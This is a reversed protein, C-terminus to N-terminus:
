GMPYRIEKAVADCAARAEPPLTFDAAALTETLQEPATAGILTAGVFDHMLTWAVALTAVSTGCEQAIAM